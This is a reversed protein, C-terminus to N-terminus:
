TRKLFVRGVIYAFMVVTSQIRSRLPGIFKGMGFVLIIWLYKYNTFYKLRKVNRGWCIKITKINEYFSNNTNQTEQSTWFESLAWIDNCSQDSKFFTIIILTVILIFLYIIYNELRKYNCFIPFFPVLM